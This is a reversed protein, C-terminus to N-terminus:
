GALAAKCRKVGEDVESCHRYQPYIRHYSYCETRVVAGLRQVPMAPDVVNTAEFAAHHAIGLIKLRYRNLFLLFLYGRWYAM